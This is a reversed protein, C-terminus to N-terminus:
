IKLNEDTTIKSNQILNYYFIYHINKIKENLIAQSENM